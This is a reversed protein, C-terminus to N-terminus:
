KPLMAKSSILFVGTKAKGKEDTWQLEVGGIWGPGSRRVFRGSVVTGLAFVSCHTFVSNNFVEYAISSSTLTMHCGGSDMAASTVTFKEPYKSDTDVAIANATALVLMSGCAISRILRM